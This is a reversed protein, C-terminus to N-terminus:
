HLDLITGDPLLATVKTITTNINCTTDEDPSEAREMTRITNGKIAHYCGNGEDVLGDIDGSVLVLGLQGPNFPILPHRNDDSTYETLSKFINDNIAKLKADSNNVINLAAEMSLYTSRFIIDDNGEGDIHYTYEPEPRNVVKSILDFLIDPSATRSRTTLGVFAMIKNTMDFYVDIDTLYMSLFDLLDYNVKASAITVILPCGKSIHTNVRYFEDRPQLYVNDYHKGYFDLNRFDIVGIDFDTSFRCDSASGFLVKDAVASAREMDHSTMNLNPIYYYTKLRCHEKRWAGRIDTASNRSPPLDTLTDYFVNLSERTTSFKDFIEVFNDPTPGYSDRVYSTQTYDYVNNLFMETSIKMLVEDYFKKFANYCDLQNDAAVINDIAKCIDPIYTLLKESDADYRPYTFINYIHLLAKLMDDKVLVLAKGISRIKLDSNKFYNENIESVTAKFGNNYM